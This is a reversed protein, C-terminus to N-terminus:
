QNIPARPVRSLGVAPTPPATRSPPPPPPDSVLERNITGTLRREAAAVAERTERAEEQVADGLKGLAAAAADGAKVIAGQSIEGLKAVAANLAAVSSILADIKADSSAQKAVRDADRASLGALYSTIGPVVLIALYGLGALLLVLAGLGGVDSVAKITELM